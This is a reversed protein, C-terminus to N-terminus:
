RHTHWQLESSESAMGQYNLDSLDETIIVDKETRLKMLVKVVDKAVYSDIACWRVAFVLSYSVFEHVLVLVQRLPQGPHQHPKQGFRLSIYIAM